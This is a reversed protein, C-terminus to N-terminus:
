GSAVGHDVTCHRESGRQVCMERRDRALNV